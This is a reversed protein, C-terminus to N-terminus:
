DYSPFEVGIGFTQATWRNLIEYVQSVQATTLRTTSEQGIIAHQMPHWLSQKVSEKGWPIEVGEKIKSLVKRQDLGADNLADALLEFYKHLAANQTTTRRKAAKEITISIREGVPLQALMTMAHLKSEPTDLNFIIPEM